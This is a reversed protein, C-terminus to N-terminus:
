NCGVSCPQLPNILPELSYDSAQNSSHVYNVNFAYRESSFALEYHSKLRPQEITLRSFLTLMLFMCTKMWLKKTPCRLLLLPAHTHSQPHWAITRCRCLISGGEETVTLSGLPHLDHYLCPLVPSPKKMVLIHTYTFLQHLIGWALLLKTNLRKIADTKSTIRSCLQHNSQTDFRYLAAEETYSKLKKRVGREREAKTKSGRFLSIKPSKKSSTSIIANWCFWVRWM